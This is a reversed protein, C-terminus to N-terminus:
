PVILMAGKIYTKHFANIVYNTYAITYMKGGYLLVSLVSFIIKNGM